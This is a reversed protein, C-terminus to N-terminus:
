VLARIRVRNYANLDVDNHNAGRAAPVPPLGVIIEEETRPDPISIWELGM